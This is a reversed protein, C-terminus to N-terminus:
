MVSCLAALAPHRWGRLSECDLQVMASRFPGSTNSVHKHLGRVDSAAYSDAQPPQSVWELAGEMCVRLSEGGRERTRWAGPTTLEPPLM